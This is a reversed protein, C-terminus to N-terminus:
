AIVLRAALVLGAGALVAGGIRLVALGHPLRTILGLGIGTLHILGTALVFGACYPVADSRRPLEVGHAYGHFIAFVSVLGAAGALPPRFDFAIAAGLAIVSAAIGPEVPLMPVAVIGAVAGAAMVLPFVVPLLWIADGRLQAGWMGVALMALVHDIGTLPHMFGTVLGIGGGSRMHAASVAPWGFLLVILALYVSSRLRDPPPLTFM